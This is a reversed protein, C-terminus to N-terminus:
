FVIGLVFGVGAIIKWVLTNNDSNILASKQLDFAKDCESLANKIKVTASDKKSIISDKFSNTLESNKLSGRVIVIEKQCYENSIVDKINLRAVTDSLVTGNKVTIVQKPLKYISKYFKAIDASNYHKVGEIRPIYKSKLEALKRKDKKSEKKFYDLTDQFQEAQYEFKKADAKFQEESSKLKEVQELISKNDIVKNFYGFFLASIVAVIAYIIIKNKM